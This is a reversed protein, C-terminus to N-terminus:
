RDMSLDKDFDAQPLACKTSHNTAYGLQYMYKMSRTDDSNRISVLFGHSM